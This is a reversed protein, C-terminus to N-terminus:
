APPIGTGVKVTGGNAIWQFADILVSSDLNHDGTDWITFRVSITDGGKVPATTQLWSTGGADLMGTPGDMGTGLLEGKGSPCYPNPASPCSGGSCHQAFASLGAPDCVDFFAINVSVPHNGSDFSINGN